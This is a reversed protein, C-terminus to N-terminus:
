LLTDDVLHGGKLGGLLLGSLSMGAMARRRSSSFAEVAARSTSAEELV